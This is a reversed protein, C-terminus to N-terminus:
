GCWRAPASCASSSHICSHIQQAATTDGPQDRPTIHAREHENGPAPWGGVAPGRNGGAEGQGGRACDAPASACRSSSVPATTVSSTAAPTSTSPPSVSVRPSRGVASRPSRRQASRAVGPGSAPLPAAPLAASHSAAAARAAAAQATGASERLGRDRGGERELVGPTYSPKRTPSRRSMTRAARSAPAAARRLGM